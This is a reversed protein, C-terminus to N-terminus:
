HAKPPIPPVLRATEEVIARALQGAAQCEEASFRARAFKALDCCELLQRLREQQEPPLLSSHRLFGLFEPTTREPAQLGFRLELYRRVVDSLLLHYREVQGAAPLGLAEIAELEHSAWQEPVLPAPARHRRQHRFRWCLLGLLLSAVVTAAIGALLWGLGPGAPPAPEMGAIDRLEKLEPPLDAADGVLAFMRGLIPFLSPRM